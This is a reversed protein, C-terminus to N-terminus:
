ICSVIREFEPITKSNSSYEFISEHVGVCDAIKRDQPISYLTYDLEKLKDYILKHTGFSRNVNNVIIKDHRIDVGNDDKIEKLDNNFIEIGDLSFFELTLPTIVEGVSSLIRKELLSMGPSLDCIAYKFDLDELEQFLKKFVVIKNILKTQAFARLSGDLSFTPLIYFDKRAKVIADEVQCKSDLVDSLEYEPSESLFWNSSNGQPDCDILITKGKKSLLFAINGSLTTKGVGGKQIHFAITKM